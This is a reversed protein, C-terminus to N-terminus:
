GQLHHRRSGQGAPQLDRPIRRSRVVAGRPTLVAHDADKARAYLMSFSYPQTADPQRALKCAPRVRPWGDSQPRAIYGSAVLRLVAHYSRSHMNAAGHQEHKLMSLWPADIIFRSSGIILCVYM